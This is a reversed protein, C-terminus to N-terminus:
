IHIAPMIGRQHKPDLRTSGPSTDQNCISVRETLARTSKAPKPLLMLSKASAASSYNARTSPARLVHGEEFAYRKECPVDSKLRQQM